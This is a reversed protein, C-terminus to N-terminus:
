RSYRSQVFKDLDEKSFYRKGTVKDIYHPVKRKQAFWNYLTSRSIGLYEASDKMGMYSDKM